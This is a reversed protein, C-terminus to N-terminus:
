HRVRRHHQPKRLAEHEEWWRAMQSIMEDSPYSPSPDPLNPEPYPNPVVPLPLLGPLPEITEYSNLPVYFSPSIVALAIPETQQVSVFTVIVVVIVTAISAVHLTTM